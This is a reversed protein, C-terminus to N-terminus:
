KEGKSYLNCNSIFSHLRDFMLYNLYGLVDAMNASCNSAATDMVNKNKLTGGIKLLTKQQSLLSLGESRTELVHLQCKSNNFLLHPAM